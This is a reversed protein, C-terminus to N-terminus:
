TCACATADGVCSGLGVVSNERVFTRVGKLTDAPNFDAPDTLTCFNLAPPLDACADTLALLSGNGLDVTSSVATINAMALALGTGLQRADADTLDGAARAGVVGVTCSDYGVTVAGDQDADAYTSLIAGIKAFSILALFMNENSTRVTVPGISEILDEAAV